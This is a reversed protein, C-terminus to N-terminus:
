NSWLKFLASLAKFYRDEMVVLDKSEQENNMTVFPIKAANIEVFGSEKGGTLKAWDDTKYFREMAEEPVKHALVSHKLKEKYRAENRRLAEEYSVKIYVISSNELIEKKLGKLSREYGVENAGRSFEILLTNKDFYDEKNIYEREYIKNIKESVFHFFSEDKVLVGDSASETVKRPVGLKNMIEENESLEWLSLFDDIIKFPAIKFKEKRKTSDCRKFFDIFESKGGAPRGFVM